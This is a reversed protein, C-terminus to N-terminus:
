NRKNIFLVALLGIAFVLMYLWIHTYADGQKQSLTHVLTFIPIFLSLTM